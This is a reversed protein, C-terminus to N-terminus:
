LTGASEPSGLSREKEAGGEDRDEEKGKVMMWMKLRSSSVIVDLVARPNQIRLTVRSILNNGHGQLGKGHRVNEMAMTEM